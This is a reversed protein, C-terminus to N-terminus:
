GVLQLLEDKGYGLAVFKRYMGECARYAKRALHRDIRYEPNFGRAETFEELSYDHYDLADNAACELVWALDQRTLVTKGELYEQESGHWRFQRVVGKRRLKVLFENHYSRDDPDFPYGRVTRIYKATIGIGRLVM